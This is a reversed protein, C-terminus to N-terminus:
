EGPQIRVTGLYASGAETQADPLLTLSLRYVDPALDPPIQLDHEGRVIEDKQWMTTLYTDSVLPATLEAVNKGASDTLALTFWWDARPAVNARWYFTLHLLDGPKIPTDAAHGFGRKYRDHGLLTVAGFDFRQRNQMELADLPPPIKARQVNVPPLSIFDSGDDLKLREFTEADYMGVIRRYSGPPTGPPILVGHNDLVTEGPQWTTTPRSEGAPEADRQAIVQNRPDLLQLFVKYRRAPTQEARWLLQVQTVEGAAPALNWGLYGLLVIGNNLQANLNDVLEEPARREPMVYVALRVNGHWQDITKYGRQALWSEIVGQPDAEATAWYLAYIKEHKLLAELDSHTATLEIPRQRPLAYIPLDGKYYYDFVEAQGPADLLIADNPQATAIIFQSIGRYDDRAAAPENWYRALAGGSTAFIVALAVLVWAATLVSRLMTNLAPREKILWGVPGVVGRALLLALAPSGILLFKLYAGRFLGLTLIMVVPALLWALPTLCRLWDMGAGGAQSDRSVFPWPLVGLVAVVFLPALWPQLGASPIPGFAVTALLTRAQEFFGPGPPPAPWASLQRIANGLWPAYLGLALAVFLLWRGVRAGLGGRHRTAFLWLAYLGTSLAIILPFAYHTYLGATWVLVLMQGSFPLWRVRPNWRATEPHEERPLRHDEQSLVWWFLLMALAAELALLIYMRAEQSYYVQFPAIAAVLGALLGAVSHYLRRGLEATALVLLVGLVASLSRLGAETAGFIRTWLHLLWYYLPPHIDNAADRTISTLSRAALAASNGEDSWLSQADLLYFRVAAAIGLILLLLLILLGTDRRSRKM